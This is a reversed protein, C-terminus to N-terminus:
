LFVDFFSIQQMVLRGSCVLVLQRGQSQFRDRRYPSGSVDAYKLGSPLSPWRCTTRGWSFRARPCLHPHNSWGSTFGNSVCFCCWKRLLELLTHSALSLPWIPNHWPLWIISMQQKLLTTKVWGLSGALITWPGSIKTINLQTQRDLLHHLTM